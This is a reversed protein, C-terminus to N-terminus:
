LSGKDKNFSEMYKKWWEQNELTSLEKDLHSIDGELVISFKGDQYDIVTVSTNDFWPINVMEELSCSRFSCLMAKIATGHTVICINKGENNKVIYEVESLLREQFAEMSEGNPMTHIHPKNEWTDYEKPWTGPLEEWREGEWDGGNIEKLKDTKIIPLGKAKAIYQCTSLTRKLSSCYIVDIPVDRLREAVRESQRHGKETIDGDTWGHFRRSANGEAEAHRVFFLRTKIIDGGGCM